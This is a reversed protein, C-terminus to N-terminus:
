AGVTTQDVLKLAEEKENYIIEFQRSEEGDLEEIFKGNIELWGRLDHSSTCGNLTEMLLRFGESKPALEARRKEFAGKLGIDEAVNPDGEILEPWDRRAQNITQKHEAKVADLVEISESKEVQRVIKAVAAKLATKSAHPGELKTRAPPEHTEVHGNQGVEVVEGTEIHVETRNDFDAVEEPVYMGSTAMPCVSRVGESITRSRLMQRPYKRWMDKGGIGAAKAREMTWDIVLTGGSPHSFEAKACTDSLEIWKIKGGSAMFDRQMAEAKKAPKGQIISYDRFAIAPHQGEAQALLCLSLAAAPDSVGFMRSQAFAGAIREIDHYSFAPVNPEIVTLENM